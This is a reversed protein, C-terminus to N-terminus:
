RQGFPSSVLALFVAVTTWVIDSGSQVVTLSQVPWDVESLVVRSLGESMRQCRALVCTGFVLSRIMASLVLM